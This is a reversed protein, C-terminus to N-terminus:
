IRGLLMLIVAIILVTGLVGTRAHGFGYSSRTQNL